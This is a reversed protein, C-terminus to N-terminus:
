GSYRFKGSKKRPSCDSSGFRSPVLSFTLHSRDIEGPFFQKLHCVRARVHCWGRVPRACVDGFKGVGGGGVVGVMCAHGYM